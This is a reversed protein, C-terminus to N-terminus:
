FEWEPTPAPLCLTADLQELLAPPGSLEDTIALGSAPLVGLWLRTFAGVSATLTPLAADVGREAGSDKGLTVVYDGGVGRWPASEDLSAAIPDNLALNFRVRESRLHTQELCGPLDCIRMQWYAAARTGAEYPSNRTIERRKFPQAILDQIQIDRPEHMRVLYVQDGINKILALLELLQEGSHYVMFHVVYPGYEVEKAGAWLFHTLEGNPGDFYGLGFGNTTWMLEAKTFMVPFLNCAGHGRKRTLRAAHVIEAQEQTIRRPVRAKRKLQLAAPDFMVRREYGGTGFGIQNYYGQEFMSLAAVLAGNAVGNAVSQATLRRALAQKRAVRSTTVGTIVCLPLEQQLYRMTGPVTNVLCEPEGNLDAVISDGAACMLDMIEEKGKELWGTEMWIRHVADKDKTPDYNRYHM